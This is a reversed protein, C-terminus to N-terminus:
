ETRIATLPNIRAARIAPALSAACAVVALVLTSAILVLPDHTSTGYLFSALARSALLAAVLGAVAGTVTVAVNQRFILSVVQARRAGLAMRVGIESTRRATRYALTGYLGIATVLLACAAFFVSLFAMMRQASLSQDLTSSLTSFIPAPIDPVDHAVIACVAATFPAAPGESRVIFTYSPKKDSNQTIPFYAEFPAAKRIDGYKVDDVIGIVEMADKGSDIHQGIANQHPFIAAAAARSLIIKKSTSLTDSWTFDRGALLPIRMTQFYHPSIWNSYLMPTNKGGPMSFDSTMSSGSFPIVHLIAASHVDPLAAILDQLSHYLRTLPEGELPQKTMTVSVLTVDHPDFGPGTRYMRFLSTSILGSGIVLVLALAIEASLLLRPLIGTRLDARSLSHAKLQANLRRGTAHLAPAMGIVLTAFVCAGAAMALVRWDLSTDLFVYPNRGGVLLVALSRALLPAAALGVVSGTFALLLSELLLQQLLRCRSAGVALRTALEHQRAAARAFLLSALNLCALLLMGCCLALAAELPQRYLQRLWTFGSSGSEAIYRFHQERANKAWDTFGEANDNKGSLVGRTLSALSANAQQLTIGPEMRGMITLWWSHYGGGTFNYPADILPEAALPLFIQPHETPDIGIFRKPMVGVITLPVKNALLRRGLVRPDGHLVNRWYDEGIVAPLGSPSGPQDDAPVLYRGLLPPTQLAEFYHGSVTAASVVASGGGAGIQLQTEASAFVHSFAPHGQELHRFLPACFGGHFDNDEHYNFVVLQHANPVPLPRLLLANMLSFVATSAGIGLAITLIATLTFGPSKRLV